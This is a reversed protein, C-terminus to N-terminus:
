AQEGKWINISYRSMSAFDHDLISYDETSIISVKDHKTLMPLVTTFVDALDTLHAETVPLSGGAYQDFGVVYVKDETPKPTLTTMAKEGKLINTFEVILKMAEFEVCGEIDIHCGEWDKQDPDYYRVFILWDKCDDDMHDEIAIEWYCGDRTCDPHIFTHASITGNDFFETRYEYGLKYLDETIEFKKNRGM